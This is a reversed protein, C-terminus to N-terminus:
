KKKFFVFKGQDDFSRKQSFVVLGPRIEQAGFYFDFYDVSRHTNWTIGGDTSSALFNECPDFYRCGDGIKIGVVDNGVQTLVFLRKPDTMKRSNTSSDVRSTGNVELDYFTTADVPYFDAEEKGPISSLFPEWTMGGDTTRYQAGKQGIVFGLERTKWVFRLYTFKKVDIEEVLEWTEGGDETRYIQYYTDQDPLFNNAFGFGLEPTVFSVDAFMFNDVRHKSWTKGGDQTKHFNTVMIQRGVDASDTAYILHNEDLVAFQRHAQAHIYPTLDTFSGGGNRTKMLTLGMVFGVNENIFHFEKLPNLTGVPVERMEWTRLFDLGVTPEEKKECSFLIFAGFVFLFFKRLISM